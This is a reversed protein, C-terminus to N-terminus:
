VSLAPMMPGSPRYNATPSEVDVLGWNLVRDPDDASEHM